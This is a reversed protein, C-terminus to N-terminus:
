LLNFDIILVTIYYECIMQLCAIGCRMSDHQRSFPFQRM